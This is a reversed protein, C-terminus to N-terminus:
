AQSRIDAGYGKRRSAVMALMEQLAPLGLPKLVLSDFGAERTLLATNPKPYGTVAVLLVHKAVADQRLRRAIEYGSMHPLGIDQIILDPRHAAVSQLASIGDYAARAKHGLTTLLWVLADATERNDDVVLIDVRHQGAIRIEV